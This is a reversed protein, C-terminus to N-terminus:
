LANYQRDVVVNDDNAPLVLWRFIYNNTTTRCVLPAIYDYIYTFIQTNPTANGNPMRMSRMWRSLRVARMFSKDIWDVNSFVCLFVFRWCCCHIRKFTERERQRQWMWKSCKEINRAFPMSIHICLICISERRERTRAAYRKRRRGRSKKGMVYDLNNNINCAREAWAAAAAATMATAANRNGHPKNADIRYTKCSTNM